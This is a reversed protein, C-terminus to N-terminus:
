AYGIKRVSYEFFVGSEKTYGGNCDDHQMARQGGIRPKVSRPVLTTRGLREIGTMRPPNKVGSSSRLAGSVGILEPHSAVKDSFIRLDEVVPGM